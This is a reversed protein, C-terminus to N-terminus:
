APNYGVTMHNVPLYIGHFFRKPIRQMFFLFFMHFYDIMFDHDFKKSFDHNIIKMREEHFQRYSCIFAEVTQISINLASSIKSVSLHGKLYLDFLHLIFPSSFYRYPIIIDPLLAHTSGCSECRIRQVTIYEETSNLLYRDYVAHNHFLGVTKCKPCVLLLYNIRRIDELYRNNDYKDNLTNNKFTIFSIM